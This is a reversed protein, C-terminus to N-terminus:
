EEYYTCYGSIQAVTNSEIKFAEGAVTELPFNGHNAVFGRPESAAGFDMAGSMHNANSNLYINAEAAVTFAINVICIKKTAVATIIENNAATNESIVARKIERSTGEIQVKGILETGAEILVHLPATEDSGALYVHLAGENTGKLTIFGTPTRGVLQAITRQIINCITLNLTRDLQGDIDILDEQGHLKICFEEKTVTKILQEFREPLPSKCTHTGPDFRFLLDEM